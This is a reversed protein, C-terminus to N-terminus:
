INKCIFSLDAGYFGFYKGRKELDFVGQFIQIMEPEKDEEIKYLVIINKPFRYFEWKGIGIKEIPICRIYGIKEM